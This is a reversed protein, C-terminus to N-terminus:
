TKVEEGEKDWGALWKLRAHLVFQQPEQAVADDHAARPPLV